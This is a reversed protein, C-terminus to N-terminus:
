RLGRLPLLFLYLFLMQLVMAVLISQFVTESHRFVVYSSAAWNFIQLTLPMGRSSQTRHRCSRTNACLGNRLTSQQLLVLALVFLLVTVVAQVSITKL